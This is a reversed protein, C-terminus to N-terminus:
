SKPTKGEGAVRPLEELEPASPAPNPKPMAVGDEAGTKMLAGTLREAAEPTMLALVESLKRPNMQRALPTLIRADMKEFVRAADRPKMAEYMVVLSKLASATEQKAKIGGESKAELEKLEGLREDMLKEASKLLNERLDLEKARDELQQRRQSLKDYIAKEAASPPQPPLPQAPVEAPKAAEKPPEAKKADDKKPPVSGTVDDPVLDRRPDTLVRGFKEKPSKEPLLMYGGQTTLGIVKLALLGAGAAIVVPLLRPRLRSRVRSM